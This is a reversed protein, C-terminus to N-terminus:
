TGDSPEIIEPYTNIYNQLGRYEDIEEDMRGIMTRIGWIEKNFDQREWRLATSRDRICM